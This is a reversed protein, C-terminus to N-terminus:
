AKDKKGDKTEGIDKFPHKKQEVRDIMEQVELEYQAATRRVCMGLLYTIDFIMKVPITVSEELIRMDSTVSKFQVSATEYNDGDFRMELRLKDKNFTVVDICNSM